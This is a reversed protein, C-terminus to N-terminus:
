HLSSWCDHSNQMWLWFGGLATVKDVEFRVIEEKWPLGIINKYTNLKYLQSSHLLTYCVLSYCLTCWLIYMLISPQLWNESRLMWRWWCDGEIMSVGMYVFILLIFHRLILRMCKPYFNNQIFSRSLIITILYTHTHRAGTLQDLCVIGLVRYGTLIHLVM